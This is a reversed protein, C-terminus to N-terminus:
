KKTKKYISTINVISVIEYGKEILYENISGEKVNDHIEVLLYEPKYKEWNNSKLVEVTHGEVDISMFDIKQNLSLNEQLINELTDVAVSKIEMPITEKNKLERYRNISFTNYAPEKYMYYKLTDKKDSVGKEINIDRKRLKKFLTMSDPRADINLGVWGKKYFFYTNSFKHPHYAGVDVYFGTNTKNQMVSDLVLDEGFQSYSKKSFKFIRNKISVFFPIKRLIKKIYVM